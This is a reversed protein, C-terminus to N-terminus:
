ISSLNIVALKGDQGLVIIESIQSYFCVIFEPNQKRQWRIDLLRPDLERYIRKKFALAILDLFRNEQLARPPFCLKANTSRPSGSTQTMHKHLYWKM